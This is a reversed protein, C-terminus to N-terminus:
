DNVWEKVAKIMAELEKPRLAFKGDPVNDCESTDLRIHKEIYQAGHMAANCSQKYGMTHDSFGDFLPFIGEFDILYQVPYQPICFLRISEVGGLGNPYFNTYIDGSIYITKVKAFNIDFILKSERMSYAFKVSKCNDMIINLAEKDFASAFVEIGYNKGTDVLEPFWKYPLPINIDSEKFLQFKCADAGCDASIKILEKAYTLSGLHCSGPDTIVKVPM